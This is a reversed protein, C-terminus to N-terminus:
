DFKRKMSWEGWFQKNEIRWIGKFSDTLNDYLGSYVISDPPLTSHKLTAGKEDLIYRVPYEKVFGIFTDTIFGNIKAPEDSRKNDDICLGSVEGNVVDMNIYFNEKKSKIIEKYGDGYVYEGQWEGSFHKDFSFENNSFKYGTFNTDLIEDDADLLNGTYRKFMEFVFNEGVQNELYPENLNNNLYYQRQGNYGVKSRSLLENEQELPNGIDIVTGMDADGAKVRIKEGNKIVAFGFHNISSHLSVACIESDPFHDILIKELDSLTEKFFIIPLQQSSIILNNKYSGIYIENEDPYMAIDYPQEEIKTLNIYGLKNLLNEYNIDTKPNIIVSSLKWGM